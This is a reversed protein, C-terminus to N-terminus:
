GGRPGAAAAAPPCSLYGHPRRRGGASHRLQQAGRHGGASRRVRAQHAYGHSRAARGLTLSSTAPCPARKRAYTNAFFMRVAYSDAPLPIAYMPGVNLNGYTCFRNTSLMISLGGGNGITVVLPDAACGAFYTDNSWVAGTNSDVTDVASGCDIRLANSVVPLFTPQYTPAATPPLSSSFLFAEIGSLLANDIISRASITLLGNRVQAQSVDLFYAAAPCHAPPRARPRACGM